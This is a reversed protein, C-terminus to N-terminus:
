PISLDWFFELVKLVIFFDVVHLVAILCFRSLNEVEINSLWEVVHEDVGDEPQGSAWLLEPGTGNGEVFCIMGDLM